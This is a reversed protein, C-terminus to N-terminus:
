GKKTTMVIMEKEMMTKAMTKMVEDDYVSVWEGSYGGESDTVWEASDSDGDNESGARANDVSVSSKGVVVAYM